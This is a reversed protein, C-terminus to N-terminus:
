SKNILFEILENPDKKCLIIDNIINFLPIEIGKKELM